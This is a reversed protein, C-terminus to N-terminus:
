WMRRYKFYLVRGSDGGAWGNVVAGAGVLTTKSWTIASRGQHTECDPMGSVSIGADISGAGGNHTGVRLCAIGASDTTWGNPIDFWGGNAYVSLSSGLRNSLWGAAPIKPEPNITPSIFKNEINM